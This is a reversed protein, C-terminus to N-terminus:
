VPEVRTMRRPREQVRREAVRSTSGECSQALGQSTEIRCREHSKRKARRLTGQRCTGANTVVGHSRSDPTDGGNMGVQRKRGRETHRQNKRGDIAHNQLAGESALTDIRLSRSRFSGVPKQTTHRPCASGVRTRVVRRPWDQWPSQPSREPTDPAKECCAPRSTRRARGSRLGGRGDKQRGGDARPNRTRSIRSTSERAVQDRPHEPHTGTGVPIM